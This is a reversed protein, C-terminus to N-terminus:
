KKASKKAAKKASKKTAPKGKTGDVIVTEPEAGGDFPLQPHNAMPDEPAKLDSPFLAIAKDIMKIRAAFKPTEGEILDPQSITAFHERNWELLGRVFIADEDSLKVGTAIRDRKLKIPAQKAAVAAKDKGSAKSASESAKESAKERAKAAKAVLEATAAEGGRKRITQLALGPSVTGVSLMQKLERPAEALEMAERIYRESHGTNSSIDSIEHGYNHLKKFAAGDEWKSLPKGTNATLMMVLRSAEDGSDKQIVPVAKIDCGEDILELVSRLRCEGDMLVASKLAPDFRVWLPNQVGNTKINIKLKDIHERNEPLSYDRPNEDGTVLIIRPDLMIMDRAGSKLDRLRSIEKSPSEATTM